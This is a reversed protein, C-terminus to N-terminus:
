SCINDNEMNSATYISWLVGGFRKTNYIVPKLDCYMGEADIQLTFRDESDAKANSNFHEIMLTKKVYNELERIKKLGGLLVSGKRVELPLVRIIFEHGRIDLVTKDKLYYYLKSWKERPVTAGGYHHVMIGAISASVGYTKKDMQYPWLRISVKVRAGEVVTFTGTHEIGNVDVIPVYVPRNYKLSKKRLVTCSPINANHLFVNFADEQATESEMNVREWALATADEFIDPSEFAWKMCRFILQKVENMYKHEFKIVHEGHRNVNAEQLHVIPTVINVEKGDKVFSIKREEKQFTVGELPVSQYCTQLVDDLPVGFPEHEYLKIYDEMKPITSIVM